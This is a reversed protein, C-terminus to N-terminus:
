WYPHPVGSCWRRGGFLDRGCRPHLFEPQNSVGPHHRPQDDHRLPRWTPGSSQRDPQRYEIPYRWADFRGAGDGVACRRDIALAWSRACGLVSIGGPDDPGPREVGHEHRKWLMPQNRSGSVGPPLIRMNGYRVSKKVASCAMGATVKDASVPAPTSLANGTTRCACSIQFLRTVVPSSFGQNSFANSRCGGGSTSPAATSTAHHSAPSPPGGVNQRKPRPLFLVPPNNGM